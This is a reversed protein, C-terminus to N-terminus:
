VLGERGSAQMEIADGLDSRDVRISVAPNEAKFFVTGSDPGEFVVDAVDAVRLPSGDENSRIVIRSVEEVTRKAVGTRIRSTGRAVDGAPDAEAEQGIADAIDTLDVNNRVLAAEPASVRVVPDAVGRITTRTVGERFLMAVLEDAYRALQDVSVPGSIVVDTVRDRWAGRRVVPDDVNDPLNTVADVATKVDDAARAMDWGPEFELSIRASGESAVSRSSEVGEVGLVAPELVGVIAEDVDEAGAGDWRVTVSVSDVVVDPFFQSRLQTAAILGAVVAVAMLLNALTRHRVFYALARSAQYRVRTRTSM